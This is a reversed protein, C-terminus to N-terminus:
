APLPLLHVVVTEAPVAGDGALGAVATLFAVEAVAWRAKMGEEADERSRDRHHYGDVGVKSVVDRCDNLGGEKGGGGGALRRGSRGSAWRTTGPDAPLSPQVRASPGWARGDADLAARRQSETRWRRPPSNSFPDMFGGPASGTM